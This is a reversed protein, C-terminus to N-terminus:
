VGPGRRPSRTARSTVFVVDARGRTRMGPLLVVEDASDADRV